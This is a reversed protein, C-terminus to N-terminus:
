ANVAAKDSEAVNALIVNQNASLRFEINGFKEAVCRLATKQLLSGADKVRGSEVFLTLFWTGDLARHWGYTDSTTTFQYDRPPELTIEARQNVEARIFDVGREAVVYKLRAHKRDGRDGFDRHITLVAKAVEVVHSKPFYGIVDALRAY